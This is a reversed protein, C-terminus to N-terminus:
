SSTPQPFQLFPLVKIRKRLLILNVKHATPAMLPNKLSECFFLGPCSSQFWRQSYTNPYYHLFCLLVNLYNTSHVQSKSRPCYNPTQARHTCQHTPIKTPVHSPLSHRAPLFRPSSPSTFNHQRCSAGIQTSIWAEFTHILCLVQHALFPSPLSTHHPDDRPTSSIALSNRICSVSLLFSVATDELGEDRRVKWLYPSHTALPNIPNM